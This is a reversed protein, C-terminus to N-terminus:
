IQVVICSGQLIKGYEEVPYERKLLEVQEVYFTLIKKSILGKYVRKNVLILNPQILCFSCNFM